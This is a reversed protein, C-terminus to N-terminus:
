KCCKCCLHGAELDVASERLRESIYNGGKRTSYHIKELQKEKIMERMQRKYNYIRENLDDGLNHFVKNEGRDIILAEKKRINLKYSSWPYDTILKVMNARLPNQEIYRMVALMHEDQSVIPSNFRGQWVHGCRRYKYNYWRTHAVTLSQMIQSISGEKSVKVLLHIHNTMLCYAYLKFHYKKKYRQITNLYHRYDEDEVFIIERNNGRNIVHYILDPYNIRANRGM